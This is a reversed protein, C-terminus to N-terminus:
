LWGRRFYAKMARVGGGIRAGWHRSFLFDVFGEMQRSFEPGYGYWWVKRMRPLLDSDMYKVRVM